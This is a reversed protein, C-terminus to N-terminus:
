VRRNIEEEEIDAIRDLLEQMESYLKKEQICLRTYNVVCWVLWLILVLELM